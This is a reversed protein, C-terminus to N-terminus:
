HDGALNEMYAACRDGYSPTDGAELEATYKQVSEFEAAFAKPDEVYRRMWENFAAAMTQKDM